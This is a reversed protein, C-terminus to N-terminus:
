KLKYYCSINIGGNWLYESIPADIITLIGYRFTPEARLNLRKSIKYDAGLSITPSLNIKKFNYSQANRERKSAANEYELIVTETAKLLINATIGISAVFSLKKKGLSFIARLPIDLYNYNEIFRATTPVPGQITAYVFGYRPDILDGFTLDDTKSQYGKNSYQVGAEFGTCKSIKYYINLGATYSYKAKEDNNRFDTIFSNFPNDDTNTLTRYCYDPSINVGVFVQKFENSPVSKLSDQGFTFCSVLM